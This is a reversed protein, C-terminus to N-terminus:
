SRAKARAAVEAPRLEAALRDLVGTVYKHGDTGGYSKALEIAENIVVKYPTDPQSALEYAAMLLLAHEVPSLEAPKRDLFPKLLDRLADAERLTGHLLTELYAQDPPGAESRERIEALLRDADSPSLLWQYLAQLCLERSRRRSGKM